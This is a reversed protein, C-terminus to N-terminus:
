TGFFLNKRSTIYTEHIRWESPLRHYGNISKDLTQLRRLISAFNQRKVVLFSGTIGSKLQEHNFTIIPFYLDCQFRKDHYMVATQQYSSVRAKKQM